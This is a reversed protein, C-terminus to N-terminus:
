DAAQSSCTGDLVSLLTASDPVSGARPIFSVKSLTIRRTKLPELDDANPWKHRRVEVYIYICIYIYMYIYIYESVYECIHKCYTAGPTNPM